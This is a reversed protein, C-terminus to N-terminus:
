LELMQRLAATHRAFGEIRVHQDAQFCEGVPRTGGYEEPLQSPDVVQDLHAAVTSVDGPIIELRSSKDTSILSVIFRFVTQSNKPIGIAYLQLCSAPYYRQDILARAMSRSLASTMLRATMGRMDAIVLLRHIPVGLRKAQRDLRFKALEQSFICHREWDQDTGHQSIINEDMAGTKEILIPHGQRDNGLIDAQTAGVFEPDPTTVRIALVQKDELWHRWEKYHKIATEVNFANASLFRYYTVKGTADPYSTKPLDCLRLADAFKEFVSQYGPHLVNVDGTFPTTDVPKSDLATKGEFPPQQEGSEKQLGSHFRSEQVELESMDVTMTHLDAGVDAALKDPPDSM